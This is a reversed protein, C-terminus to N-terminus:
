LLMCVRRRLGKRATAQLNKSPHCKAQTPLGAFIGNGDFRLSLWTRATLFYAGRVLDYKRSDLRRSLLRSGPRRWAPSAGQGQRRRGRFV